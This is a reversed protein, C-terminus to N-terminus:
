LTEKLQEVTNTVYNNFSFNTLTDGDIIKVGVKVKDDKKFQVTKGKFLTKISKKINEPMDKSFVTVTNKQVLTRLHIIFVKLEARTLNKLVFEQIKADVINKAAVVKALQKLDINVM